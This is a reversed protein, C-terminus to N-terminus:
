VVWPYRDKKQFGKARLAEWFKKGILTTSFPLKPLLLWANRAHIPGAHIDFRYVPAGLLTSLTWADRKLAPRSKVHVRYAHRLRAPAIDRAFFDVRRTIFRWFHSAREHEEETRGRPPLNEAQRSLPFSICMGHGNCVADRPEERSRAASPLLQVRAPRTSCLFSTM